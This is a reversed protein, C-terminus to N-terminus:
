LSMSGSEMRQDVIVKAINVAAVGLGIFNVFKDLWRMGWPIHSVIGSVSISTNLSEVSSPVLVLRTGSRVTSVVSLALLTV